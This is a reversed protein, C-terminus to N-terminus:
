KRAGCNHPLKHKIPIVLSCMNCRIGRSNNTFYLAKSGCNICANEVDTCPRPLFKKKKFALQIEERSLSRKGKLDLYIKDDITLKQAM